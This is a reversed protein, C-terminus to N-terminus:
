ALSVLRAQAKALDAATTAAQRQLDDIETKLRADENPGYYAIQGHRGMHAWGSVAHDTAIEELFDDLDGATGITVIDDYAYALGGKAFEFRDWELWGEFPEALEEIKARAGPKLPIFGEGYVEQPM